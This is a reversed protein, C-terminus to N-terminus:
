KKLVWVNFSVVKWTDDVATIAIIGKVAQEEKTGFVYVQGAKFNNVFLDVGDGTTWANEIFGPLSEPDLKEIAEINTTTVTTERFITNNSIEWAKKNNYIHPFSPKRYLGYKVHNSFFGFAIDSQLATNNIVDNHSHAKCDGVSFWSASTSNEQGPLFVLSVSAKQVAPAPAPPTSTKEKKCASATLLVASVFLCLQKM